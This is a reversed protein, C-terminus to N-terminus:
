RRVRRAARENISRQWADWGVERPPSTATVGHRACAEQWAVSAAADAEDEYAWADQERLHMPARVHGPYADITRSPWDTVALEAAAIHERAAVRAAERLHERADAQTVAPVDLVFAWLAATM